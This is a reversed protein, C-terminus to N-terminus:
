VNERPLDKTMASYTEYCHWLDTSHLPVSCDSRVANVPIPCGPGAASCLPVSDHLIDIGLSKGPGERPQNIELDTMFQLNEKSDHVKREFKPDAAMPPMFIRNLVQSQDLLPYPGLLLGSSRGRFGWDCKRSTWVMRTDDNKNWGYDSYSRGQLQHLTMECHVMHCEM